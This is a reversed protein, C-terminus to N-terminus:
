NCDRELVMIDNNRHLEFRDEECEVVLWNGTIAQINAGAVNSFEVIVGDNSQSTSWFADITETATYIVVIGSNTEFDLNYMIFDDSGNYNVINWICDYLFADVDTESCSTNCNEAILQIEFIGVADGIEVRVYITQPNTTNTYAEPNPIPNVYIQADQLTEYYTVVDAEPTCNAYAVTLNFLAHGDNNDSCAVLEANFSEFCEFPNTTVEVECECNANIVGQQNEVYCVDGINAQLNECDYMAVNCDREFVLHNAENHMEIRDERCEVVLWDLSIVNYPEPLDLAVFVGSGTLIVSWTGTLQESSQPNTIVVIGDQTFEFTDAIINDYLNTGAYWICEQLYASIEQASCDIDDECEKELVITTTNGETERILEFRDDDCEVVIWSGELDESFATLNSIVLEPYGNASLSTEWNGGIAVTTDGNIIQFTGNENFHFEYELYNDDGNFSVLSWFCEQLYMSLEDETCDNEQIECDDEAENIATELEQNNNVELTEGNAYVLTVPFNLSALVVGDNDDDLGNLFTYLAEDNEITITDIIQFESDYISFSIPYQFDVCEIVEVEESCDEIFVNLQEENEIVVETYDNLIITIPFLFELTDVDNEFENYLAEILQLDELTSITITIGNVVITVPLNIALCNANDLVDDLSGDNASAYLMLETLASNAVIIEQENPNDNFVAEDECSTFIFLAFFTLLYILKTKM